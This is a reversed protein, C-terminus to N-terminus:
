RRDRPVIPAAIYVVDGRRLPVRDLFQAAMLPSRVQRPAGKPTGTTGGTLLVM